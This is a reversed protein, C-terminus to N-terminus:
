NLPTFYRSKPEKLLHEKIKDWDGAAVIRDIHSQHVKKSQWHEVLTFVGTEEATRYIEVRECGEVRPLNEQVSKLIDIFSVISAPKVCFTVIVVTSM